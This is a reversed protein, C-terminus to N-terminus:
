PVVKTGGKIITKIAKGPLYNLNLADYIKQQRQEPYTSKRIHLIKNDSCKMSVTIRNQGELQRLLSSWSSNIGKDKLRYRITHVLHYGIVTIFLHGTIRKELRHYIPRMGLESKMSRFVSELDTLMTYTHWLTSEDLEKHSTRLCYVGPLSDKNNGPIHRKCIINIANESKKDKEVKIEYYKSVRSYRQKLRGIKELVKDYKKLCGKKNLGSKVKDISEEFRQTFKNNIAQEKEARKTSHCYLLVENNKSDIVKEVKVTCDKEKKVVVSLEENFERRHKRSVVIYPYNNSKLWKINEETAIGADMVVTSKCSIIRNDKKQDLKKLMKELTSAEGVNGKFVESRKPFGSSDLVVALTVLPCDSRKEKSHGHKCINSEKCNGEFYSNTLDYLTITEEFGFIEQEQKYLYREIAEKNKLLKDSVKYMMYLSLKKFNYDILEGLGSVNQLWYHTSHESGPKCMRGVILGTAAAVEVGNFGLEKLYEDLKLFKFSELAVHECSVSRPRLMEISNTDIERYDESEVEDAGIKQSEIIRAAYEQALEEIEEDKNEFIVKEKKKSIIEEIRKSLEGWKDRPLDFEVGLNLLTYQRVGKSTRESQVLRYTFYKKGDKRSKITTRRIYM